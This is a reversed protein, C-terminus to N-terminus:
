SRPGASCRSSMNSSCASMSSREVRGGSTLYASLEHPGERLPMVRRAQAVGLPAPDLHGMPEGDIGPIIVMGPIGLAYVMLLLLLPNRMEQLVIATVRDLDSGKAM